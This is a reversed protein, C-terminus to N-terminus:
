LGWSDRSFVIFVMPVSNPTCGVTGQVMSDWGFDVDFIRRCVRGFGCSGRLVALQFQRWKQKKPTSCIKLGFFFVPPCNGTGVANEKWGVWVQVTTVWSEVISVYQCSANRIRSQKSSWKNRERRKRPQPNKYIRFKFNGPEHKTWCMKFSPYRQLM